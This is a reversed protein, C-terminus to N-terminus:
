LVQHIVINSQIYTTFMKQIRENLFISGGDWFSRGITSQSMSFQGFKNKWNRNPILLVVKLLLKGEMWAIM